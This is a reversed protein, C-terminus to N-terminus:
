ADRNLCQATGANPNNEEQLPIPFNVDTGYQGGKPYVGVPFVQAQNRGYQRVLRRMDGLRHGTLWLWYAREEFLQSVQADRTAPLTLPALVAGQGAPYGVTAQQRVYDFNLQEMLPQVNARLDNLITLYDATRGAQLAAEAQILRAEVGSALVTFAARDPYRLADFQPTENDFGVDPPGATRIWLVRPDRGGPQGARTDRYPLGNGGERNAVSVRELQINFSWIINNEGGSNASHELRYTFTTPVDSPTVLAAAEAFRGLNLLARAKGVRALRAQALVGSALPTPARGVVALASDFRALATDLMATTPLPAGYRFTLKGGDGRALRSIPVGSCYHETIATFAFGALSRAEARNAFATRATDAVEYRESVFDATAAATNAAGFVGLMTGNDRNIKRIDVELRTPFTEAFLFEDGLMGGYWALNEYGSIFDGLASARLTPISTTTSLAEDTTVDPNPVELIDSCAAGLLALATVAARLPLKGRRWHSCTTM